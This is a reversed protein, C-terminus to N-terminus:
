LLAVLAARLSAADEVVPVRADAYSEPRRRFWVADWGAGLAGLVDAPWSDGVHIARRVGLQKVAHEFIRRDPKAIGVVGSDIVAKFPDGCGIEALLEAIKGESNSVVGVVVGSAELERALEVMGEIPKRWLNAVPQQDWLFDVHPGPEAVGAGELLTGMLAKWPHAAGGAVLEDHRKWAAAKAWALKAPEVAVGREELRRALFDLDLEVLTEGVDFTVAPPMLYLRM